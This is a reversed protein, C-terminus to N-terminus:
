MGLSMIGMSIVGMRCERRGELTVAFCTSGWGEEVV